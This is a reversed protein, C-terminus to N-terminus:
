LVLLPEGDQKHYSYSSFFRSSLRSEAFPHRGIAAQCQNACAPNPNCLHQCSRIPKNLFSLRTQFLQFYVLSVFQCVNMILFDADFVSRRYTSSLLQVRMKSCALFASHFQRFRCSLCCTLLEHYEFLSMRFKFARIHLDTM